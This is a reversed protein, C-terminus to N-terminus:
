KLWGFLFHIIIVFLNDKENSKVEHLTIYGGFIFGLCLVFFLILLLSTITFTIM